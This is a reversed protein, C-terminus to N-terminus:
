LTTTNISLFSVDSGDVIGIKKKIKLSNLSMKDISNVTDVQTFPLGARKIQRFTSYNLSWKLNYIEQLSLPKCSHLSFSKKEIYYLTEQKNLQICGNFIKHNKTWSGKALVNCGELTDTAVLGRLGYRDNTFM